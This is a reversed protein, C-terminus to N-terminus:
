DLVLERLVPVRGLDAVHLAQARQEGRQAVEVRHEVGVAHRGTSACADPRRPRSRARPQRRRAHADTTDRRPPRTPPGGIAPREEVVLAPPPRPLVAREPLSLVRVPPAGAACTRPTLSAGPLM